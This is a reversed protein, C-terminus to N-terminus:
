SPNTIAFCASITSSEADILLKTESDKTYSPRATSSADPALLANSFALFFCYSKITVPWFIGPMSPTSNALVKFAIGDYADVGMSTNVVSVDSSIFDANLGAPAVPHIDLGNEGSRIDAAIAL